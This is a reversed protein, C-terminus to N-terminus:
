RRRETGTGAPRALALTHELVPKLEAETKYKRQTVLLIENMYGWTIISPHNYHQRIMERLNRECNDGYGPTNPVIDIISDRGM